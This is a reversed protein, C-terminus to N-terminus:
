NGIGLLNLARSTLVPALLFLRYRLRNVFKGSLKGRPVKPTSRLLQMIKDTCQDRTSKDPLRLVQQLHWMSEFAFQQCAMAALDPYKQLFQMRLYRAHLGDLRRPNYGVGMISSGRQLYEYMPADVMALATIRDLVQYTWFDDENCKGKEFLIGDIVSRHYLMNWVTQYVGNEEVLRRM